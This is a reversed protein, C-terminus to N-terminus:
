MGKFCGQSVEHFLGGQFLRPVVKLCEQFGRLVRSVVKVCGHIVRSVGQLCKQFM